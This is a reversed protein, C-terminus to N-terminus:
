SGSACTAGIRAVVKSFYLSCSAVPRRAVLYACWLPESGMGSIKSGSEHDCAYVGHSCAQRAALQLLFAAASAHSHLQFLALLSHRLVDTGGRDAPLDSDRRVLHVPFSCMPQAHRVQKVASSTAALRKTRRLLTLEIAFPTATSIVVEDGYPDKPCMLLGHDRQVHDCNMNGTRSPIKHVSVDQRFDSPLLMHLGAHVQM